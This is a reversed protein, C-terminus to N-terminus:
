SPRGQVQGVGGGGGGVDTVVDAAYFICIGAWFGSLTPLPRVVKKLKNSGRCSL